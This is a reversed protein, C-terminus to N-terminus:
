VSNGAAYGSSWAWQFNYGGLWGTVDVAEGIVFLGPVTTAAMTKSSLSNTDVGGLTVEAKAYGESGAPCLSWQKLQKAAERLVKDTMQGIVGNIIFIETFASALRQTLLEALITKLEANPRTKKRELLYGEADTDPLMDLTITDGERWLSSIQLIAPGSIGRHTFVMGERFKKKGHHAIVDTSVGSLPQMFNLLAGQFVLPVLAPRIDTLPLGFQKALRHSLNTAGMKPISLGGSALVLSSAEFNGKDTQVKFSDVKSVDSINVSLRIDVNVATCEDLLMILIDRASKDCFLQGLTKHHYPIKHKDVLAIFDHQTYSKLASICFHPNQSYFKNPSIDRNTFNCRGGGSILIKKGAEEAHDLVLVRKGRQGARIACMLGAAGAGIIIVDYKNM